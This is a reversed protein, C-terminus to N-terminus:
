DDAIQWTDGPNFQLISAAMQGTTEGLDAQYVIGNANVEFTHVGTEGYRVPWAILAFGAIMHGNLVYDYKGGAINSGQRELIRYHYGFYGQGNHIDDLLTGDTIAEGAPSPGADSTSPWYLGDTEGDSSIIKRAYELFGDGDRDESGYERQAVVYARMTAIAQLENEGIRRNIIEEFGARTDFSWKGNSGQVVPFPFPWLKEGIDLVKFDATDRLNIKKSAAERIQAFVEITQEDAKVRSPELGVLIAFKDVDNSQLASTFAAVVEAASTFTLPGSPAAVGSLVTLSSPEAAPATQSFLSTATFTSFVAGFLLINKSTKM